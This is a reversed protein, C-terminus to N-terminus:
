RKPKGYLYHDHQEALDEPLDGGILEAQKALQLLDQWITAKGPEMRKVEAPFSEALENLIKAALKLREEPSIAKVDGYIENWTRKTM